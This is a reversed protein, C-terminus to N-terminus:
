CFTLLFGKLLLTNSKICVHILYSPTSWQRKHKRLSQIFSRNNENCVEQACTESQCGCAEKHVSGKTPRRGDCPQLMGCFCPPCPATKDRCPATGKTFAKPITTAPYGSGSHFCSYGWRTDSHILHHDLIPIPTHAHM